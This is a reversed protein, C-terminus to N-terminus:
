AVIWELLANQAHLLFAKAETSQCSPHNMADDSVEQERAVPPCPLFILDRRARELVPLSIQFDDLESSMAGGPWSDTIIVDADLLERMDTSVSFNANLLAPESVQWKDPYVQM